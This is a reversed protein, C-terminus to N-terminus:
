CNQLCNSCVFRSTNSKRVSRCHYAPRPRRRCPQQRPHRRSRDASAAIFYQAHYARLLRDVSGVTARTCPHHSVCASAELRGRRGCRPGGGGMSRAHAALLALRLHGAQWGAARYPRVCAAGNNHLWGRRLVVQRGRGGLRASHQTKNVTRPWWRQVVTGDVGCVGGGRECCSAPARGRDVRWVAIM